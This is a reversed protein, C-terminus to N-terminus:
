EGIQLLLGRQRAVRFSYLFTALGIALYLM